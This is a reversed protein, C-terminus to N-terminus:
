LPPMRLASRSTGLAAHSAGVRGDDARKSAFVSPYGLTMEGPGNSVVSLDPVDVIWRWCRDRPGSPEKAPM